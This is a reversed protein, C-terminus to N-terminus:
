GILPLGALAAPVRLARGFQGWTCGDAGGVVVGDAGRLFTGFRTGDFIGTAQVNFAHILEELYCIDVSNPNSELTLAPTYIEEMSRRGETIAPRVSANTEVCFREEFSSAWAWSHSSRKAQHHDNIQICTWFMGEFIM